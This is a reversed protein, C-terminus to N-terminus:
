ESLVDSDYASLKAMVVASASPAEDCNSDFSDLDDTQFIAPTPIEQSEQGTTVTDGNDALFAMQEEDLAVGLELAEVLLM